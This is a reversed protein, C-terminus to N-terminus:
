DIELDNATNDNQALAEFLKSFAHLPELHCGAGVGRREVAEQERARDFREREATELVSERGQRDRSVELLM